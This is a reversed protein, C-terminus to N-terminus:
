SVNVATIVALLSLSMRTIADLTVPEVAGIGSVATHPHLKTKPNSTQTPTHLRSATTGGRRPNSHQVNFRGSSTENFVFAFVLSLSDCHLHSLERATWCDLFIGETPNRYPSSSDKRPMLQQTSPADPLGSRCVYRVEFPQLCEIFTSAGDLSAAARPLLRLLHGLLEGVFSFPPSAQKNKLFFVFFILPPVEECQLHSVTPEFRNLCHDLSHTYQPDTQTQTLCLVAASAHRKTKKQKTNTKAPPILKDAAFPARRRHPRSIHNASPLFSPLVIVAQQDKTFLSCAGPRAQPGM